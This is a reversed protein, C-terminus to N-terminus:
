MAVQDPGVRQETPRQQTQQRHVLDVRQQYIHGLLLQEAQEALRRLTQGLRGVLVL